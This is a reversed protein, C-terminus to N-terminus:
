PVYVGVLWFHVQDGGPVPYCTKADDRFSDLEIVAYDGSVLGAPPAVDVTATVGDNMGMGFCPSLEKGLPSTTPLLKKALSSFGPTSHAISANLLWDGTKATSWGTVPISLTTGAVLPYWDLATSVNYYTDGTPPICPDGGAAAAVNSFIRQYQWTAAGTKELVRAGECLDGNEIPGPVQYVDWVPAKWPVKPAAGLSWGAYTPDTAAEAVEHSALRTLEELQTEGGGFPKARSVVAWGDGIGKGAAPFPAHYATFPLPGSIHVADPLYLLYLTNGDPTPAGAAIRAQIYGIMEAETVDATIAPGVVSQSTAAGIEWASAVQQWWQSGVLADGFAQLDPALMDNQAVITVLKMSALVPGGQKSLQPFARHATPVFGAGANGAASSGGPAAGGPGAGGGGATTAGGLGGGGGTGLSIPPGCTRACDTTPQCVTGAPCDADQFCVCRMGCDGTKACRLPAECDADTACQGAPSGSAGGGGAGAGGPAGVAPESSSCAAVSVLITSLLLARM